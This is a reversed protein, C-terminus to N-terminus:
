YGVATVGFEAQERTFGEFRLQDILGKRSFSQGDLYSEAKKAAQNNWDVQLVDVAYVSDENSYGEFELQDILGERSFSQGDLYSEAQERANQQGISESSSPEPTVEEEGPVTPTLTTEVQPTEPSGSNLANSLGFIVILGLPVIFRKKQFWPRLSKAKAKAAEAEAKALKKENPLNSM